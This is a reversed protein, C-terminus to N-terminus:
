MTAAAQWSCACHVTIAGGRSPVAFDRLCIRCPRAAGGIGDAFRELEERTGCVKSYEGMFTFGRAPGSITKCTARHLVLCASSPARYTNIVFGDPENALWHQYGADDDVFHRVRGHHRRLSSM